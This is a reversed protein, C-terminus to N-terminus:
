YRFVSRLLLHQVSTLLKSQREPSLVRLGATGFLFLPTAKWQRQPVVAEAWALLPQLATASLGATCRMRRSFSSLSMMISMHDLAHVSQSHKPVAHHLVACSLVASCLLACCLEASCLVACCLVACCLVPCCLVACCLSYNYLVALLQVPWRAVVDCLVACRIANHFTNLAM